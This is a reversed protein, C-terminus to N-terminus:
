YLKMFFRLFVGEIMGFDYGSSEEMEDNQDDENNQSTQHSSSDTITPARNRGSPLTEGLIVDGGDGGNNRKVLQLNTSHSSSEEEIMKGGM